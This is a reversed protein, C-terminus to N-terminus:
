SEGGNGEIPEMEKVRITDGYAPITVELPNSINVNLNDVFFNDVSESVQIRNKLEKADPAIVKIEVPYDDLSFGDVKTEGNVDRIVTTNIIRQGNISIHEAEYMNLENVLRKLLHPSVNKAREGLLLSEKSPEITLIIGESRIDTLGAERKLEALTERLVEEKGLSRETQYKALKEEHAGIEKILESQKQQEQLLDGRLEWTDRTDRVEPNKHSQFQIALMFGIIVAIFTFAFNNIRKLM